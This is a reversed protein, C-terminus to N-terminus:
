SSITGQNWVRIVQGNKVFAGFQEGFGYVLEGPSLNLETNLYRVLRDMSGNTVGEPNSSFDNALCSSNSASSLTWKYPVDYIATYKPGAFTLIRPETSQSNSPPAETFTVSYPNQTITATLKGTTLQYVKEEKETKTQESLKVDPEAPAHADPFLPIRPDADEEEWRFHDIKVGIVGQTPSHIHTSLVPGGLTDGRHRIPRTAVQCNYSDSESSTKVSVAQLAYFPKVGSKLLWFGDNFKM